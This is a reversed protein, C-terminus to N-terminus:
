FAAPKSGVVIMIPDKEPLDRVEFGTGKLAMYLATGADTSTMTMGLGRFPIPFMATAANATAGGDTLTKVIDEAFQAAEPDNSPSLVNVKISYGRLAKVLRAHQDSSIRRWSVLARTQEHELRAKEQELRAQQTQLLLEATRENARAAEAKAQNSQALANALHANAFRNKFDTTWFLTVTAIISVLAGVILAIIAISHIANARDIALDWVATDMTTRTDYHGYSEGTFASHDAPLGDNRRVLARSTPYTQDMRNANDAVDRQAQLNRAEGFAKLSAPDFVQSVPKLWAFRGIVTQLLM